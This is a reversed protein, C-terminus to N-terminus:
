NCREDIAHALMQDAEALNGGAPRDRGGGALDAAVINHGPGVVADGIPGDGVNGCCIEVRERLSKAGALGLALRFGLTDAGGSDHGAFAPCGTMVSFRTSVPDGAKAPSSSLSDSCFDDPRSDWAWALM